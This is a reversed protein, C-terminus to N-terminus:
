LRETRAAPSAAIQGRACYTQYVAVGNALTKTSGVVFAVQKGGVEDERQVSRGSCPLGPTGGPAPSQDQRHRRLNNPRPVDVGHLGITPARRPTPSSQISIGAGALPKTWM